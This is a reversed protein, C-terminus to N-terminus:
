GAQKMSYKNDMIGRVRTPIVKSCEAALEKLMKDPYKVIDNARPELVHQSSFQQLFYADGGRIFALTALVDDADVIGPVMTTRFEHAIGSEVILQMSKAIDQHSGSKAVSEYKSLSSKVDMAVYDVLEKEFLKALVGPLTGNTDLKIKCGLSKLRKLLEKVKPNFLPEGGTVVVGDLWNGKNKIHTEILSFDIDPLTSSKVLDPNHCYSCRLNCGGSFITTVLKGDWDLMSVPLFGKVGLGM